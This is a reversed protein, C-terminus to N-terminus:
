SATGDSEADNAADGSAVARTTNNTRDYEGTGERVLYSNVMKWTAPALMLVGVLVIEAQWFTSSYEANPAGTLPFHPFIAQFASWSIVWSMLYSLLRIVPAIALATIAYKHYKISRTPCLGLALAGTLIWLIGRIVSPVLLHPADTPVGSYGQLTGIGTQVWIFGCLLM